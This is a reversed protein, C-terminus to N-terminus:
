LEYVEYPVASLDYAGKIIFEGILYVVVPANIDEIFVEFVRFVVRGRGRLFAVPPLHRIQFPSASSLNLDNLWNSLIAYWQASTLLTMLARDRRWRGPERVM